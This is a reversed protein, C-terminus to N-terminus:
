KRKGIELQIKGRSGFLSLTEAIVAVRQINRGHTNIQIGNRPLTGNYFHREKDGNKFVVVVRDLHMTRNPTLRIRRVNNRNVSFVKRETVLKPFRHSELGIWKLRGGRPPRRKQKVVVVIERIKINGDLRLKWSGNSAGFNALEVSTFTRSGGRNFSRKNGPLTASQQPAGGVVLSVSGGGKRSKGRVIVYKLKKNQFSMGPYANKLKNKLGIQNGRGRYHTDYMPIVLSQQGSVTNSHRHGFSQFGDIVQVLSSTDSHHSAEVSGVSNAWTPGHILLTAILLSLLSQKM